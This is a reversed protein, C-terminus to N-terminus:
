FGVQEHEGCPEGGLQGATSSARLVRLLEALADRGETQRITQICHVLYAEFLPREFGAIGTKKAYTRFSASAFIAATTRLLNRPKQKAVLAAPQVVFHFWDWGPVGLLEGREWDLATWARDRPSVKVNWPAFDGHYIVPRVVRTSLTAAIEAPLTKFLSLAGLSVHRDDHIWGDLLSAFGHTDRPSDGDIFDLAIADLRDSEFAARVRSIGSISSPASELFSKERAILQRASAGVGAKVVAVPEGKEGFVLVIFRRGAAHPNGALIAVRPWDRHALGGLFRVFPDHASINLAAAETPIPVGSALATRLAFKAFRAARSQAPYLCLARAALRRERPLVLFSQGSKKFVRFCITTDGGATEFLDRWGIQREAAM